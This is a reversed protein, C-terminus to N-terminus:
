EAMSRRCPDCFHQMTKSAAIYLQCWPFFNTVKNNSQDPAMHSRTHYTRISENVVLRCTENGTRELSVENLNMERVLTHRALECMVFLIDIISIDHYDPAESLTKQEDAM